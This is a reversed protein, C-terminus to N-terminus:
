AAVYQAAPKALTRAIGGIRHAFIEDFAGFLILGNDLHGGADVNFDDKEVADKHPIRLHDLLMSVLGARGRRQSLIPEPRQASTLRDAAVPQPAAVKAEVWILLWFISWNRVASLNRRGLVGISASSQAPCPPRHSTTELVM